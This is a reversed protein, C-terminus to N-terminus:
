AAPVGVMEHDFTGDAKYEFILTTNAGPIESQWKGLFPNSM